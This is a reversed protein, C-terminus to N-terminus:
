QTNRYVVINGRETQCVVTGDSSIRPNSEMVDPTDIRINVSGDSRLVQIDSGIPNGDDENYKTGWIEFLCVIWKCYPSWRASLSNTGGLVIRYTVSGITMDEGIVDSPNGLPQLSKLVRLTDDFELICLGSKSVLLKKCCQQTGNFFIGPFCYKESEGSKPSVKFSDSGDVRRVWVEGYAVPGETKIDGIWQKLPNPSSGNHIITFYQDGYQEMWYGITGDPLVVPASINKTDGGLTKRVNDVPSEKGARDITSIDYITNKEDGKQYDWYIFKDGAYRFGLAHIKSIKKPNKGELDVITLFGNNDIYAITDPSIFEPCRGQGIVQGQDYGKVSPPISGTHQSQTIRFFCAVLGIFLGFASVLNKSRM